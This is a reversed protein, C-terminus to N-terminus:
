QLLRVKLETLTCSKPDCLIKDWILPLEQNDTSAVEYRQWTSKDVKETLAPLAFNSIQQSMEKCTLALDFLNAMVEQIGGM